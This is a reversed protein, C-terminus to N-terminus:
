SPKCVWRHFVAEDSWLITKLLNPWDRFWAMMMEGFEMRIDCDESSLAKCCHLKWTRWKFENELVNRVCRFSLGSDRAAQPISKQPSRTFMEQVVQM